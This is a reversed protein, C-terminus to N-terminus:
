CGAGEEILSRGVTGDLLCAAFVGAAGGGIVVVKRIGPLREGNALTMPMRDGSLHRRDAPAARRPNRAPSARAACLVNRCARRSCTDEPRGALRLARRRRRLLAGRSRPARSRTHRPPPPVRRGLTKNLGGEVGWFPSVLAARPAAPTGGVPTARELGGIAQRLRARFRYPSWMSRM